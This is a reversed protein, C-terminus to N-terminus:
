DIESYGCEPCNKVTEETFETRTRSINLRSGCQPCRRMAEWRILLTLLIVGGAIGGSIILILPFESTGSENAEKEPPFAERHITNIAYLTGSRIEGSNARKRLTEQYKKLEEATFLDLLNATFFTRIAWGERERVFLLFSESQNGFLGWKARIKSAFIDPNLYPDRTSILLTLEINKDNLQAIKNQLDKQDAMTLVNGYDNLRGIKDPLSIPFSVLQTLSIAGLILVIVINAAL